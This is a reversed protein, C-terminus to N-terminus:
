GNEGAFRENLETARLAEAEGLWPMPMAQRHAYCYEILRLSPLVEIAPVRLPEARRMAAIVNCIQDIFSREFNAAPISSHELAANLTYRSAGFGAELRNAENAQWSLWGRTGHLTYRNALPHDRSLRVQGALGSAFRCRLRCNVEIGGMADDEYQTDVPEGLWWVMLDLAHAGIDMLVGGGAMRRDFYAASTVPWRFVDGELFDFSTIEGIVNAALMERIMQTAPFFRRLMGAALVGSSGAAADFMAQAHKISITLPKECLVSVGARLLEIGQEAHMRPPSALIVLDTNRCLRSFEDVELASAFVRKLAKRMAPVPDYLAVVRLWGANELARLAPGYYLQAVAGCGSLAVTVPKGEANGRLSGYTTMPM